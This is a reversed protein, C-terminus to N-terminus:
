KKEKMSLERELEEIKKTINQLIKTLQKQMSKLQMLFKDKPINKSIKNLIQLPSIRGSLFEEAFLSPDVQIPALNIIIKRLNNLRKKGKENIKYINQARGKVVISEADILKKIKLDKFARYVMSQSFGSYIKQTDSNVQQMIINNMAKRLKYGSIGDPYKSLENLFVYEVFLKHIPMPTHIDM